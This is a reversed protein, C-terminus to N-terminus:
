TDSRLIDQNIDEQNSEKVSTQSNENVETNDIVESSDLNPITKGKSIESGENPNDM